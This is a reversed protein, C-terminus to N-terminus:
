WGLLPQDALVTHQQMWDCQMGAQPVMRGPCPMYMKCVCEHDGKKCGHILNILKSSNCSTYRSFRLGSLMTISSVQCASPGKSPLVSDVGGTHAPVHSMSTRTQICSQSNPLLKQSFAICRLTGAVADVCHAHQGLMQIASSFFM